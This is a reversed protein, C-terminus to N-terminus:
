KSTTKGLPSSLVTTTISTHLFTILCICLMGICSLVTLIFHIDVYKTYIENNNLLGNRNEVVQVLSNYMYFPRVEKQSGLYAHMGMTVSM